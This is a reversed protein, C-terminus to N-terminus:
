VRTLGIQISSDAIGTGGDREHELAINVKQNAPLPNVPTVSISYNKNGAGALAGSDGEFYVTVEDDADILRVKHTRSGANNQRYQVTIYDFTDTWDSGTDIQMYGINSWNNPVNANLYFNYGIENGEIWTGYDVGAINGNFTGNISITGLVETMQGRAAGSAGVTFNGQLSSIELSANGGNISVSGAIVQSSLFTQGAGVNVDGVLALPTVSCIGDNLNIPGTTLQYHYSFNTTAGNVEIAGTYEQGALFCAGSDVTSDGEFVQANIYSEGANHKLEGDKHHQINVTTKGDNFILDGQSLQYNYTITDGADVQLATGITPTPGGLPNAAFRVANGNMFCPVGDAVNVYYATAGDAVMDLVNSNSISPRDGDTDIYICTGDSIVQGIEVFSGAASNIMEVANGGFLSTVADAELGSRSTGDFSYASEGALTSTIGQLVVGSTDAARYVPGSAINGSAVTVTPMDVQCWAPFQITNSPEYRGRALSIAAAQDSQSPPPTLGAVRAQLEEFTELCIPCENGDAKDNGAKSIYLTRPERDHDIFSM